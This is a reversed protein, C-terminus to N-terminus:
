IGRPLCCLLRKSCGRSCRLDQMHLGEGLPSLTMGDEEYVLPEHWSPSYSGAAARPLQWSGLVTAFHRRIQSRGRPRSKRPSKRSIVHQSACGVVRSTGDICRQEPKSTVPTTKERTWSVKKTTLADPVGQFLSWLYFDRDKFFAFILWRTWSAMIQFSLVAMAEFIFTTAWRCQVANRTRNPKNM